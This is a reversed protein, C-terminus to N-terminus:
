VFLFFYLLIVEIGTRGRLVREKDIGWSICETNRRGERDTFFIDQNDKGIELIWHPLSIFVNGSESGGYEHFALVVKLFNMFYNSYNIHSGFEVKSQYKFITLIVMLHLTAIIPKGPHVKSTVLTNDSM